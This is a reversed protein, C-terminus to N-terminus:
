KEGLGKARGRGGRECVTAGGGVPGLMLTPARITNHSGTGEWIGNLPAERYLREM